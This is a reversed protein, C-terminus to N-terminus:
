KIRSVFIDQLLWGSFKRGFTAANTFEGGVYCNGAQDTSICMGEDENEGGGQMVWMLSGKSDYKAISADKEGASTMKITGFLVDGSITGVVYANGNIDSSVKRFENFATGSTNRSWSFKGNPEFKALFGNSGSVQTLLTEGFSKTGRFMGAVFISGNKSVNIGYGIDNGTGGAKKAWVLTGSPNYKLIFVDNDFYGASAITTGSFTATGTFFGTVYCNGAIDTSVAYAEDQYSGGGTKIWVLNGAADYKAVYIDSYGLSTIKSNGFMATGTFYGCVYSNGSVDTAIGFSADESRGGGNRAWLLNGIASFKSVFMDADGTETISTSGFTTTTGQIFFFGTIYCNGTIDTSIASAYDDNQGGVQKAWLLVGDADYKAIFIDTGGASVLRTSDFAITSDFYGCIFINGTMDTAIGTIKDIAPGGATKTWEWEQSFSIFVLSFFFLFSFFLKKM